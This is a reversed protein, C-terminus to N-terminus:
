SAWAVITPEWTTSCGQWRSRTTSIPPSLLAAEHVKVAEDYRSQNRLLRGQYRLAIMEGQADNQEHSQRVLAALSDVDHIRQMLSDLQLYRPDSDHYVPGDHRCAPLLAVLVMMVVLLMVPRVSGRNTVCNMM